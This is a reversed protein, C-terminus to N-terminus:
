DTDSDEDSQFKLDMEPLGSHQIVRHGSCTKKHVKWDAKQCAVSCYRCSCMPCRKCKASMNIACNCCIHKRNQKIEERDWVVLAYSILEEEIRQRADNYYMEREITQAKGIANRILNRVYQVQRATQRLHCSLGASHRAGLCWLAVVAPEAQFDTTSIHLLQAWDSAIRRCIHTRKFLGFIQVIYEWKYEVPPPYPFLDQKEEVMHNIKRAGVETVIGDHPSNLLTLRVRQKTGYPAKRELLEQSQLRYDSTGFLWLPGYGDASWWVFCM